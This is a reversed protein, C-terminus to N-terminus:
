GRFKAVLMWIVGWILMVGGVIMFVNFGYPIISYFVQLFGGTCQSAFAELPATDIVPVEALAPVSVCLGLAVLVWRLSKM